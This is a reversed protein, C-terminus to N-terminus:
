NVLTNSSGTSRLRHLVGAAHKDSEVIEILCQRVEALDPPDRELLRSAAQANALIATLPQSLEHVLTSSLGGAEARRRARFLLAGIAAAEALCLAGGGLVFWSYTQWTV